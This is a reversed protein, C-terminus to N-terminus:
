RQKIRDSIDGPAVLKGSEGIADLVKRWIKTQHEDITEDLAKGFSFSSGGYEMAVDLFAHGVPTLKETELWNTRPASVAAWHNQLLLSGDVTDYFWIGVHTDGDPCELGYPGSVVQLDENWSALCSDLCALYADILSTAPIRFTAVHM